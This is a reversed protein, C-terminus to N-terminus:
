NDETIIKAKLCISLLEEKVEAASLEIAGRRAVIVIDRPARLKGRIQRFAEKLRRKLKNRRTARKELKKTIILGLRSDGTKSVAVLALLYKSSM